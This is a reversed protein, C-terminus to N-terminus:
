NTWHCLVSVSIHVIHLMLIHHHGLLLLLLVLLLLEILLRLEM